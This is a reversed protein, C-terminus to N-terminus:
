FHDKAIVICPSAVGHDVGLQVLREGTKLPSDANERDIAAALPHVDKRM